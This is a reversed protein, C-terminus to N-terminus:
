KVIGRSVLEDYLRTVLADHFADLLFPSETQVKAITPRIGSAPIMSIYGNLQEVTEPPLTSLYDDAVPVPKKVVPVTSDDSVAVPTGGSVPAQSYFHEAVAESVLEKDEHVIGSTGELARKKEEIQRSLEAIEAELGGNLNESM